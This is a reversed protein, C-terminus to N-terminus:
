DRHRFVLESKAPTGPAIESEVPGLVLDSFLNKHLDTMSVEGNVLVFVNDIKLIEAGVACVDVSDPNTTVLGLLVLVHLPLDQQLALVLNSNSVRTAWTRTM